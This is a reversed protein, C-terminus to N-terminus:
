AHANERRKLFLFSVVFGILFWQLPFTFYIAPGGGGHVNGGLALAGLLAPTNLWLWMRSVLTPGGVPLGVLAGAVVAVLVTAAGILVRRM